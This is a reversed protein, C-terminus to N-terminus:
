ASTSPLPLSLPVSSPLRIRLVIHDSPVVSGTDHHRPVGHNDSSPHLWGRLHAHLASSEGAARASLVQATTGPSEKTTLPPASGAGSIPTYRAAKEWQVPPCFRHWPAQPRRPQRLHPPALGQSAHIAHTYGAEHALPPGM